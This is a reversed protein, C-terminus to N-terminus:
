EKILVDKTRNDFDEIEEKTVKEFTSVKTDLGKLVELSSKNNVKLDLMSKVLQEKVQPTIDKRAFLIFGPASQLTFAVKYVNPNKKILDLAVEERLVVGDLLNNDLGLILDKQGTAGASEIKINVNEKKFTARALTSVMAQPIGGIKKSSLDQLNKTEFNNKTMIVSVIKESRQVLPEYGAKLAEVGVEANVYLLDFKKKSVKEKLIKTSIEPSFSVLQSTNLTLYNSFPLYRNLYLTNNVVGVTGPFIGIILGSHKGYVKILDERVLYPSRLQEEKAVSVNPTVVIEPVSPVSPVNPVNIVNATQALATGSVLASLVGLMIIKSKM